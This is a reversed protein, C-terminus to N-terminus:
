LIVYKLFRQNNKSSIVPYNHQLKRDINNNNPLSAQLHQKNLYQPVDTTRDYDIWAIFIGSNHITWLYISTSQIELIVDALVINYKRILLETNIVQVKNQAVLYELLLWTFIFNVVRSTTYFFSFTHWHHAVVYSLKSVLFRSPASM